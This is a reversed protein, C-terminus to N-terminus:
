LFSRLTEGKVARQLVQDRSWVDTCIRSPFTTTEALQQHAQIVVPSRSSLLCSLHQSFRSSNEARHLLLRFHAESLNGDEGLGTTASQSKFPNWGVGCDGSGRRRRGELVRPLDLHTLTPILHCTIQVRVGELSMGLTGTLFPSLWAESSFWTFATGSGM